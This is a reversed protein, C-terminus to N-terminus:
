GHKEGASDSQECSTCVLWGGKGDCESCKAMEGPAYALPDEEYLDYAGDECDIMWCEIWELDNGCKPCSRRDDYSEASLLDDEACEGM